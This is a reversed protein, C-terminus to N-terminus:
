CKTDPYHYFHLNIISINRDPNNIHFAIKLDHKLNGYSRNIKYICTLFVNIFLFMAPANKKM